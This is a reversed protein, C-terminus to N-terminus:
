DLEFTATVVGSNTGALFRKVAEAKAPNPVLGFGSISSLSENNLELLIQFERREPDFCLDGRAVYGDFYAKMSDYHYRALALQYRREIKWNPNDRMMKWGVKHAMAVAAIYGTYHYTPTTLTMALYIKM